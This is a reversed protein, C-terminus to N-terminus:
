KEFKKLIKYITNKTYYEGTTKDFQKAIVACLYMLCKDQFIPETKLKLYRRYIDEYQLHTKPKISTNQEVFEDFFVEKLAKNIESNRSNPRIKKIEEKLM